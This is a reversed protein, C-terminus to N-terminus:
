EESDYYESRLILFEYNRRPAENYYEVTLEKVIKGGIREMAKQSRINNVGVHFCVKDCYQFAYDLMLKKMESNVGKGWYDRAIFTYGIFVSKDDENKDYFRTSGIVKDNTKDKIVFAGKSAIAGEFFNTFVDLQYREKNPHQEWILPDSAVAFLADFDNDSLPALTVLYGELFPQLSFENM